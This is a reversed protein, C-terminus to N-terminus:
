KILGGEDPLYELLDNESWIPISLEEAKELKSGADSGAVVIDTNKSVSGSVSGGLSEILAKAEDRKLQELKGTLVVKKGAFVLDEEPIEELRPGTYTMNVGARELEQLLSHVEENEFYTVISDAMIEGIDNIAILDELSAEKVNDMTEFHIALSRAAKAGVHRIGLGFLLRELSNQKSKEIAALLNTASKEGMRELQLLEEKSLFYLDAVDHILEHTFLQRVVKEGLGDINMASRSVFHILGEKLQAPCKPNICRLAVEGELRVLESGCEPCHSPMHFEKENGIRKEPLSRIVEPIIDGAKKIMVTDNIRIDKQKILDENHLSARSVTTGAVHVPDLIATPTIVGTRGVRLEIDRLITPVEEAPFKYAIAWRPSKVTYGVEEQQRLDNLKVVIGDIEYALDSRKATWEEVYALVEEINKCVRREKNVKLGLKELYDLGESHKTVGMDGFDAVSYLFIDLNRKAAIKTDLQRLSGAAANRPNAFLPLGEEERAENLKQFSKKPMYTEGRVEISLTEKLKIPISRVTRLNATIDEGTTGDGRTAGQRYEGNEYILSVALGDIKLECMYEYETGDGIRDQIRRDFDRLDDEGFANGLSLMPTKHTVKQFGQLIEGGVRQSPSDATIWDPHAEEIKLLEQMAKDYVVDEVSPNDQVYYDYSYQNLEEILAEYRKKDGMM